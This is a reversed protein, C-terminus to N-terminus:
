MAKSATKMAAKIAAEITKTMAKSTYSVAVGTGAVTLVKTAASKGKSTKGSSLKSYQQELNMRNVRERLEVDSLKKIDEKPTKKVEAKNKIKKAANKPTNVVTKLAARKKQQYKKKNETANIYQKKKKDLFTGKHGQGKPYPQYRRIGWKMGLVGYHYINNIPEETSIGELSAYEREREHLSRIKLDRVIDQLEREKRLRFILRSLEEDSANKITKNKDTMRGDGKRKTFKAAM